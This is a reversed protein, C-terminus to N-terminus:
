AAWLSYIMSRDIQVQFRFAPIMEPLELSEVRGRGPVEEAAESGAECESCCGSCSGSPSVGFGSAAIAISSAQAPARESCSLRRAASLRVAKLALQALQGFSIWWLAQGLQFEALLDAGVAAGAETTFHRVVNLPSGELLLCDGPLM